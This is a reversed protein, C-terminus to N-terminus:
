NEQEQKIEAVRKQVAEEEKQLAIEEKAEAREYTNVKPRIIKAIVVFLISLALLIISVIGTRGITYKVGYAEESKIIVLVIAGTFFALGLLVYLIARFHYEKQKHQRKLHRSKRVCGLAFQAGDGMLKFSNFFFFLAVIQLIVAFIVEKSFHTFVRTFYNTFENVMAIRPGGDVNALPSHMGISITIFVFLAAGFMFLAHFAGKLRNDSKIGEIVRLLAVIVIGVLAAINMFALGIDYDWSPYYAYMMMSFIAVQICISVMDEGFYDNATFLNKLNKGLFKIFCIILRVLLALALSIVIVSRILSVIALVKDITADKINKFFEIIEKVVYYVSISEGGSVKVLPLFLGIGVFVFVALSAMVAIVYFISRRNKTTEM